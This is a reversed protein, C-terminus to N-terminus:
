KQGRGMESLFHRLEDLQHKMETLHIQQSAHLDHGLKFNLKWVLVSQDNKSEIANSLLGAKKSYQLMEVLRDNSLENNMITSYNRRVIEGTNHHREKGSIVASVFSKEDAALQTYLKYLRSSVSKRKRIQFISFVVLPMVALISLGLLNNNVFAYLIENGSGLGASQDDWYAAIPRALSLYLEKISTSDDPAAIIGTNALSDTNAWISILV